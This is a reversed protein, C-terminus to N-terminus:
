ASDGATNVFVTILDDYDLRHVTNGDTWHTLSRRVRLQNRALIDAFARGTLNRRWGGSAGGVGGHHIVGIGGPRLVRRFETVYREAEASNIHVFVDHSWITDISGAAVAALDNGSGLVFRANPNGAFRTRCHEVCVASIDVGVYESARQLLPETWRGGGPGIELVRSRDPIEQELVCRTLSQKWEPSKSWEEGGASWNWAEWIEKNLTRSNLGPIGRKRRLHDMAEFARHAITSSAYYALLFTCWLAGNEKLALRAIRLKRQLPIRQRNEVIDKM